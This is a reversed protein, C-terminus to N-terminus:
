EYATGHLSNTGSKLLMNMTGGGTHGYAADAMFSNVRLEQVADQPPNYAVTLNRSMDPAGELLIENSQQPAGAMSVGSPGLNDYPHTWKPDATPIVGFSLQALVLPTRGNLPMNDIQHAGIVQGISATGTEILPVEASVTVSESAQGVELKVDFSVRAETNVQL